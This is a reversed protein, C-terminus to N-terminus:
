PVEPDWRPVQLWDVFGQADPAIETLELGHASGHFLPFLPNLVFVPAEVVTGNDLFVATHVLHMLSRDAPLQPFCMEATFLNEWFATPNAIRQRSLECRIRVRPPSLVAVPYHSAGNELSVRQRGEFLSGWFHGPVSRGQQLEPNELPQGSMLLGYRVLVIETNM